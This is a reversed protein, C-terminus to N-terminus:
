RKHTPRHHRPRRGTTRFTRDGGTASGDMTTMLVEYHYKTGPALKYITISATVPEVGGIGRVKVTKGYKASTGYEFVVTTPGANPTVSANLTASKGNVHTAKTTSAAPAAVQYSGIDCPSTTPRPVGRQDTTPCGAGTPPIQGIAASQPGLSITESPGGHDALPGLNPDGALFSGPCSSDGFSLDHGGDTLAPAACNGGSDSALLTNQLTLLSGTDYVGGGAGASGTSGGDGTSGGPGGSGGDGGDGVSNGAITDSTL